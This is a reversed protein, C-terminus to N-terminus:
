LIIFIFVFYGLTLLVGEIRTITRKTKGVRILIMLFISSLILIGIERNLATDFSIPHIVASAGLVLFINFINSGLVNGIAIDTNKKTAAIISTVLEPLSTAMAVLTLGITSQSVGLNESITTASDVIWKGGFFLGISGSIIFLVSKFISFTKISSNDEDNKGSKFFLIYLMLAFFSLLIIGDALDITNQKKGFVVDNAILALILIAMLNIWSDRKCIISGVKVPYIIATVGLILLTNMLNSGLVNGIALDTNGSFSALVNIVLEPLSTGLAVVTLGIVFQSLGAKIGVSSAGDVLFKAGLILIIFGAIFIIYTM